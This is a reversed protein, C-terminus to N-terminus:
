ANKGGRKENYANPLPMWAIVDDFRYSTEYKGGFTIHTNWGAKTWSCTLVIGQKDCIIYQKDEVSPLRESCPIWEGVKPQKDVIDVFDAIAQSPSVDYVCLGEFEKEIAEILKKENIM